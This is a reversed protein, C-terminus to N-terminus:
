ENYSFSNCWCYMNSTMDMSFSERLLIFVFIQEFNYCSHKIELGIQGSLYQNNLEM